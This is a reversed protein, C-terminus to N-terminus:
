KALRRLVDRHERMIAEAREMQEAVEPSYPTLLIGDPAEIVYLSDGKDVRLKALIEKPLVVGASNGVTTIKLVPM